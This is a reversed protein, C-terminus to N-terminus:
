AASYAAHEQSHSGRPGKRDSVDLISVSLGIIENAEDRAPHCSVHFTRAMEHRSVPSDSVEFEPVAEGQLARQLYPELEIFLSPILQRMSRGIHASIPVGHIDALRQNLNVYRFERDLFCLGIPTGDYIAKLQALRQTPMADLTSGAWGKGTVVSLPLPRPRAVILSSVHSSPVSRGYLWGQGQECGLWLLMDAQEETEIGEAVSVLGLSHALGIISAVIKRSQRRMTMSHIFSRDIKLEDFPLAQLHNLSSYGTGFDDLALKCGASKLTRVVTRARDLNTLIASETIEVILRSLDFGTEEALQRIQDTLSPDQLQTASINVSLALPESWAAAALFSKRFLQHMLPAMLGHDEALGIFQEPLVPGYVPHEWRALVEFGTLRGDHLCVLPQFSPVLSDKALIDHVDFIDILM